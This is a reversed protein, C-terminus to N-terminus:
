SAMYTSLLIWVYYKNGTMIMMTTPPTALTSLLLLQPLLWDAIMDEGEDVSSSSSMKNLVHQENRGTSSRHHLEEQTL